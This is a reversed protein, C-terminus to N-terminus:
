EVFEIDVKEHVSGAGPVKQLCPTVSTVGKGRSDASLSQAEKEARVKKRTSRNRKGSKKRSNSVTSSLLDNTPDPGEATEESSEEDGLGPDVIVTQSCCTDQCCRGLVGSNLFHKRGKLRESGRARSSFCSVCSESVPPDACEETTLDVRESVSESLDEFSNRDFYPQRTEVVKESDTPPKKIEGVAQPTVATLMRFGGGFLNPGGTGWPNPHSPASGWSMSAVPEAWTPGGSGPTPQDLFAFDLGFAGGGGKGSRGYGGSGGFGGKYNNKGGGGKGGFSRPPSLGSARREAMVKDLEQCESKKHGPKHCFGCEGDFGAPSGSTGGSEKGSGFQPAAAGNGKGGTGFGGKNGRFGGKGAGKSKWRVFTQLDAPSLM